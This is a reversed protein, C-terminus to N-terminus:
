FPLEIKPSHQSSSGREAVYPTILFGDKTLTLTARWMGRDALETFLTRPLNYLGGPYKTKGKNPTLAIDWSQKANNM